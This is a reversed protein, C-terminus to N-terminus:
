KEIVEETKAATGIKLLDAINAQPDIVPKILPTKCTM